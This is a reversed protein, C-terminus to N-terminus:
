DNTKARREESSFHWSHCHPCHYVNGGDGFRKRRMSSADKRSGYRDKGEIPCKGLKPVFDLLRKRRKM